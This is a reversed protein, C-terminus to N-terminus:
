IWLLSITYFVACKSLIPQHQERFLALANSTAIQWIHCQEEAFREVFLCLMCFRQSQLAHLLSCFPMCIQRFILDSRTNAFMWFMDMEVPIPNATLTLSSKAYSCSEAKQLRAHASCSSRMFSPRVPKGSAMPSLNLLRHGTALSTWGRRCQITSDFMVYCTYIVIYIYVSKYMICM